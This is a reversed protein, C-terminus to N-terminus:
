SHQGEPPLAIWYLQGTSGLAVVTSQAPALAQLPIPLADGLPALHDGRDHTTEVTTGHSIYLTGPNARDFTLGVLADPACAHNPTPNALLTLWRRGGSVSRRLSCSFDGRDFLVRPATPDPEHPRDAIVWKKGGDLSRSYGRPWTVYIMEPSGPLVDVDTAKPADHISLLPTWTRGGDHSVVPQGELGYLTQADTGDVARLFVGESGAIPTFTKGGDTTVQAPTGNCGGVYIRQPDSPAARLGAACSASEQTFTRGGDLSVWLGTPRAAALVLDGSSAIEAIAPLGTLPAWAAGPTAPGVVTTQSAAAPGTEGSQAAPAGDRRHCSTQFTLYVSAAVVLTEIRTRRM